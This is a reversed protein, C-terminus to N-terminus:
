TKMKLGVFNLKLASEKKINRKLWVLKLERPVIM